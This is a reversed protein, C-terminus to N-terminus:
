TSRFTALQQLRQPTLFPQRVPPGVYQRIMARIQLIDAPKHLFEDCGAAMARNEAEGQGYATLVIKPVIRLSPDTNFRHLLELGNIDGPLRLDVFILDPKREVALQWGKEGNEASLFDHGEAEVIRKVLLMNYLHDEVYLILKAM